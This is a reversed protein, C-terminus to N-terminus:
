SSLLAIVQDANELTLGQPEHTAVHRHCNPEMDFDDDLIVFCETEPHKDLWLQIEMGRHGSEFKSKPDRTIFDPTRDVLREPPLGWRVFWKKLEAIAESSSVLHHRDPETTRDLFGHRWASSLVLVADTNDLIKKLAKVCEPHFDAWKTNHTTLVSDIDLFIVKM